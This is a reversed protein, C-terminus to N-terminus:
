EWKRLLEDMRWEWEEYLYETLDALTPASELSDIHTNLSYGRREALAIVKDQKERLADRWTM